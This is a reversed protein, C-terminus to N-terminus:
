EGVGARTSSVIGASQRDKFVAAASAQEEPVAYHRCLYTKLKELSERPVIHLKFHSFASPIYAHEQELSCIIVLKYDKRSASQLKHFLQEVAYSVEYSLLDAYVLTYIKESINGTTLCRRLFIEVHECLTTSSCLLVEDYSPLPEYKSAAYISLCTALIEERPCVVLNPRGLMLGKPLERRIESREEVPHLPMFEEQDDDEYDWKLTNNLRELFKGLGSIDLTDPLFTKMDTIYKNWIFDLTGLGFDKDSVDQISASEESILSDSDQFVLNWTRWVVSTSSKPNIFSLMMLACEDLDDDLHKLSLQECLYVIQEATYYNLYYNEARQKEMFKRWDCLYREMKKCLKPLQEVVNGDIAIKEHISSLHFDIIIRHNTLHDSNITCCNIKAEWQRFLPNGASLLDIFIGALRQVHDFVKFVFFFM